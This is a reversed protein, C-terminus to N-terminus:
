AHPNENAAQVAALKQLLLCSAVVPAVLLDCDAQGSPQPPAECPRTMTPM